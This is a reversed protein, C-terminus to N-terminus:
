AATIGQKALETVMDNWTAVTALTEAQQYVQDGRWLKLVWNGWLKVVRVKDGNECYWVLREPDRSWNLPTTLKLQRM